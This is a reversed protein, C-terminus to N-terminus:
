RVLAGLLEAEAAAFAPHTITSLDRPRPLDVAVERRVTTPRPDLVVVRDALFM